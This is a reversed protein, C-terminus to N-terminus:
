SGAEGASLQQIHVLNRKPCLRQRDLADPDEFAYLTDGPGDWLVVAFCEPEVVESRVASAATM